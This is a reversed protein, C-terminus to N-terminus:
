LFLMPKFSMSIPRSNGSLRVKSARSRLLIGSVPQDNFRVNFGGFAYDCFIVVGPFFKPQIGYGDFAEINLFWFRLGELLPVSIPLTCDWGAQITSHIRASTADVVPQLCKVKGYIISPDTELVCCSPSCLLQPIVHWRQSTLFNALFYFSFSKTLPVMIISARQLHNASLM